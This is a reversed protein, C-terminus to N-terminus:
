KYYSETLTKLARFNARDHYDRSAMYWRRAREIQGLRYYCDGLYSAIDSLLNAQSTKKFLPEWYRISEAYDAMDYKARAAGFYGYLLEPTAAISIEWYHAADGISGQGYLTGAYQSALRSKEELSIQKLVPDNADAARTYAFLAEPILGRAQLDAANALYIEPRGHYGMAIYLQGLAVYAEPTLRYWADLSMARHIQKEAQAYDGDATAVEASAFTSQAAIPRWSQFFALLVFAALALPVFVRLWLWSKMQALGAGCVWIAGGVFFSWGVGLASTAAYFRALVGEVPEFLGKAPSSFVANPLTYAVEFRYCHEFDQGGILAARLWSPEWCTIQLYFTMALLLLLGGISLVAPGHDNWWFFIGAAVLLLAVVGYSFLNFHAPWLYASHALPFNLATFRPTTVPDFWPLALSALVV